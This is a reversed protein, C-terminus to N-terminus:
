QSGGGGRQGGLARGGGGLGDGEAEVLREVRLALSRHHVRELDLRGGLDRDRPLAGLGQHDRGGVGKGGVGVVLDRDGLRRDLARAALCEGGVHGDGEAGLRRRR